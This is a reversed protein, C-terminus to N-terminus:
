SSSDVTVATVFLIIIVCLVFPFELDVVAVFSDKLGHFITFLAQVEVVPMGMLVVGNSFSKGSVV